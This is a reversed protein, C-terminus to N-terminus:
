FCCGRTFRYDIGDACNFVKDRLDYNLKIKVMKKEADQGVILLQYIVPDSSDSARNKRSITTKNIKVGVEKLQAVCANFSASNKNAKLVDKTPLVKANPDMCAVATQSVFAALVLVTSLVKKM